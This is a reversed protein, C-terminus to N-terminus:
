FLFPIFMKTKKMYDVYIKGFKNINENEEIRATATIFASAAMVLICGIFSPDKFFIGWGLFLLSSYLPHRIYRFAGQTVLVTTDEVKDKPKGIIRLIHFGHMVLFGSFLLLPWSIIQFISFPDHFWQAVNLLFLILILEFAFFRHFGHSHPDRFYPRSLHIIGASVLVFIILKFM